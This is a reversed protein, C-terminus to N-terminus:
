HAEDWNTGHEVSVELKVKMDAAKMMGDKVIRSVRELDEEKVELLLEDHVQLLIKADLGSQELAEYVNKLAIKMIDAATGQIPSNMAIREGASRVMFNSSALEIIPRIRGFYTRSMGSERAEVVLGDLYSKITPYTAFYQKIYEEAEKRSVNIEQGLGFSSMGYIIGFNVAKANSRMTPTVDDFPVNFVKSATIRHIDKGENYASILSDDGSLCALLRLEIQSYDADLFVYGPRAVFMKRIERGLDKRIPINQLNPDASSLRGTATVTQNFHCHIRGDAEIYAGMGDAYTGKLKTYMRYDLIKGVLPEEIKLKELVDAATSYGTKTKKGGPLKLKEFLIEGLQKPSNINFVEGVYDYIEKELGKIKESLDSGYNVLTDRDVAIGVKEMGRLAFVCPMEVEEFLKEMGKTFVETLIGHAGNLVVKAHRELIDMGVKRAEGTFDIEQLQDALTMKGLVEKVEPITTGLYDRAIDAQSYDDKEPNLLYLAIKLDKVNKRNNRDFIEAIDKIDFGYLHRGKDSLENLLDYIDAQGIGGEPFITFFGSENVISLAVLSNEGCGAYGTVHSFASEKSKLLQKKADELMAMNDVFVANEPLNLLGTSATVTKEAPTLKVSDPFRNYFSRMELEKVMLYAERTYIDRLEAQDFSFDFECDTKITALWRCFYANEKDKILKEQQKGKLEDIHQYIGDISGYTVLLDTAGKEGIGEVGKYNDSSDGAIGKLDIIQIPNLRYKEFVAQPTFNEITTVGKRTTPIRVTISDDVLQLLDHDGSVITSLIGNKEAMKAVTGLLDDAEYGGKEMTHIGMAHLLKTLPPFQTYFAEEMPRRQGKYDSFEKHRFTPEHVDFAVAAYDPKEEDFIKLVINLFGLIANTHQGKTTTLDPLGFYARNAISNGDILVIKKM